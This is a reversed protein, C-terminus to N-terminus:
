RLDAPVGSERSTERRKWGPTAHTELRGEPARFLLADFGFRRALGDARGPGQVSLVKSLADLTMPDRGVLTVQSHDTLAQGTRPDVIHSYRVGGIEVRQFLDGSTVLAGDRLRLRRSPPADPVDPEGVTVIWGDRGPPSGAAYLDGGATVLSNRIGHERLVRSTEGIAYGKAIGGPDLRMGPKLLRATARGRSDRSLVVNSWGCAARAAEIRAPEPLQRQRRARKWVDVRPGVTIDFAGEGARSVEEAKRLVRELDPSLPVDVGSGSTKSLRSLESSPEYDSLISNLEAVRKWAADAASEARERSEAYLVFRWPMGMQTGPFEFRSEATSRTRCGMAVAALLLAALVRLLRVDRM